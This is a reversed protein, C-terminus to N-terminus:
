SLPRIGKRTAYFNYWAGLLDFYVILIVSRVKKV